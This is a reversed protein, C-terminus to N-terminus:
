WPRSYRNRGEGSRVKSMVPVWYDCVSSYSMKEIGGVPLYPLPWKAGDPMKPGDDDCKDTKQNFRETVHNSIEYFIDKLIANGEIEAYNNKTDIVFVVAKM